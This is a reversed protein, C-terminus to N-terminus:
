SLVRGTLGGGATALENVVERFREYDGDADFARRPVCLYLPGPLLVVLLDSAPIVDIVAHWAYLSHAFGSTIALGDRGVEVSRPGLAAKGAATTYLNAAQKRAAQGWSRRTPFRLVLGIVAGAILSMSATYARPKHWALDFALVAVLFLIVGALIRQAKRRVKRVGPDRDAVAEAAAPLDERTVDFEVRLPKM